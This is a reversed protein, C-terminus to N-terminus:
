NSNIRYYETGKKEAKNCDSIRPADQVDSEFFIRGLKLKEYLYFQACSLLIAYAVYLDDNKIVAIIVLSINLIAFLAFCLGSLSRIQLNKM